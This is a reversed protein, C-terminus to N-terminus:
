VRTTSMGPQPDGASIVDRIEPASPRWGLERRARAGSFVADSALLDAMVGMRERLDTVPLPQTRGDLGALESVCEALARVTITSESAAIYVQGAMGRELVRLYLDALDDVHVTSWRARGDAPFPIASADEGAHLLLAVISTGIPAYVFPPRIAMARVDRNSLARVEARAKWGVPGDLRLESSEDGVAGPPAQAVRVGSTWVLTCQTGALADSLAEALAEEVVPQDAPASVNVVADFGTALGAVGHVDRVDGPVARHGASRVREAAEPSRVLCVVEHGADAIRRSAGRGIFGTAGLMLVRM